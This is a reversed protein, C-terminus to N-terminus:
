LEGFYSSFPYPNTSDDFSTAGGVDNNNVSGFPDAPPPQRADKVDNDGPSRRFKTSPKSEKKRIGSSDNRRGSRMGSM